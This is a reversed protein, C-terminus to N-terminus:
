HKYRVGFTALSTRSDGADARLDKVNYSAVAALKETLDASLATRSRLTRSEKGFEYSLDQNFRVAPNIQYEYFGAVSGIAENQADFPTYREKSHRYGAGVEASLKHQKNNFVDFGVGVLATAQYDFASQLDKEGALQAFQYVSDSSRHLVKGSLYYQEVNSTATDDNSGIAQARIEQGWVGKQRQFLVNASLNEKNSTAAETKSQAISYGVDAELRYDKNDVKITGPQTRTPGINNAYVAPAAVALACAVVLLKKM